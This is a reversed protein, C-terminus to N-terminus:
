TRKCFAGERPKLFSSGIDEHAVSLSFNEGRARARGNDAIGHVARQVGFGNSKPLADPPNQVVRIPTTLHVSIHIVRMSVLTQLLHVPVLSPPQSTQPSQLHLIIRQPPKAKILRYLSISLTTVSVEPDKCHSWYQLQPMCADLTSGLHVYTIM